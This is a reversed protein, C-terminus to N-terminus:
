RMNSKPFLVRDPEASLAQLTNQTLRSRVGSIVNGKM